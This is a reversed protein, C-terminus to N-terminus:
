AIQEAEETATRNAIRTASSPRPLPDDRRRGHRYRRRRAAAAPPGGTTLPADPASTILVNFNTVGLVTIVV